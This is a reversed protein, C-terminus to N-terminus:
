PRWSVRPPETHWADYLRLRWGPPRIVARARARRMYKRRTTLLTWLCLASLLPVLWMSWVTNGSLVGRTGSNNADDHLGQRWLRGYTEWSAYVPSAQIEAVAGAAFAAAVSVRVLLRLALWCAMWYAAERFRRVPWFVTPDGATSRVSFRIGRQDSDFELVARGEDWDKEVRLNDLTRRGDLAGEFEALSSARVWRLRWIREVGNGAAVEGASDVWVRERVKHCWTTRAAEPFAADVAELLSRNVRCPGAGGTLEVGVKDSM